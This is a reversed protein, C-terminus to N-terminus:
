IWRRVRAKYALYEGGFRRTLYAEERAIVGWRIALMALPLALLAWASNAFFAVGLAVLAMGLYIPNRTFRYIGTTVLATSPRWPEPHTRARRFSAIAPAALLLGAAGLVIGLVRGLADPLFPWPRRHDVVLALVLPALFILPPPVFIRPTEPAAEDV